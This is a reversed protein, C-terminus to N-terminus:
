AESRSETTDACMAEVLTSDVLMAEIPTEGARTLEDLMVSVMWAGIAGHPTPSPANLANM